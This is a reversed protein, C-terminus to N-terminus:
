SATLISYTKIVSEQDSKCPFGTIKKICRNLQLQNVEGEFEAIELPEKTLEMGSDPNMIWTGIGLNPSELNITEYFTTM